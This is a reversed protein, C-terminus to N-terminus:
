SALGAFWWNGDWDNGDRHVDVDREGDSWHRFLAYCWKGDADKWHTANPHEDAFTPDAENVAALSYPDSPKLCRLAFEKELNDDSIWGNANYSSKDPKFFVVKAEEGNDKPM